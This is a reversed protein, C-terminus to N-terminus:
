WTRQLARRVETAAWEAVARAEDDRGFNGKLRGRAIVEDLHDRLYVTGMNDTTITFLVDM